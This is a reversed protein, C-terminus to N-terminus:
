EMDLFSELMKEQLEKSLKNLRKGVSIPSFDKEDIINLNKLEKYTEVGKVNKYYFFLALEISEKIEKKTPFTIDRGDFLNVIKIFTNLDLVSYLDAVDKCSDNNYLIISVIDLFKQVEGKEKKRFTDDLRKEWMEMPDSIM